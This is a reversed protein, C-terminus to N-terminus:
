ATGESPYIHRESDAVQTVPAKIPGYLIAVVSCPVPTTINPVTVVARVYREAPHFIDLVGIGDAGITTNFTVASGILDAATGMGVVTDQQAKMIYDAAEGKLAVAVFLVGEYGATDIVAGTLTENDATKLSSIAPVM